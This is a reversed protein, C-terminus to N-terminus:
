DAPTGQRNFVIITAMTHKKCCPCQKPNYAEPAAYSDQPPPTPLPLLQAKIVVGCQQKSSSSLIGFHRNRVFGKPLIHQSFQRIFELADLRMEKTVGGHHYDKYTFTVKGYNLKVIHHNSIAIKHTYHGLYEVVNEAGSFPKKAFVVWNNRYLAALLKHTMKLPLVKKLAAIFRGRFVRSM